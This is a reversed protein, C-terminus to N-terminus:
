GYACEASARALCRLNEVPVDFFHDSASCIYGGAQGFSEFLGRVEAGIQAPTGHRLLEGQDVGGILAVRSGLMEKVRKRQEPQIDGGVGPPSLTESADCGTAPIRDLIAMMGGCTHYVVPFGAEHLADVIPRDYPVVFEDFMAPSIVTSSAAGGGHEILDYRAGRMEGRVYGVKIASLRSLFAHVANPEDMAWFIAQQTGALECLEQWCGPQAFSGVFGRVIGSDGTRDYWWSLRQRDLTAPTWHDVFLELDEIQKVPHESIYTTFENSATTFSLEGGPTSLTHRRLTQGGHTGLEQTSCHWGPSPSSRMVDLPTVSADLGTARFAEVQDMGGMFHDLHYRQWQHVTIPLRDPIGRHIATLMREKGTM